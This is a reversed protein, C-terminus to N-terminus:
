PSSGVSEVGVNIFKEKMEAKSMVKSIERSVRNVTDAATNAPAFIGFISVAEFGPIGSSAVTPLGPLLPSPELSTVALAILRGSKVQAVTEGPTSFMMQVEGAILNNLAVGNGRYSVQEIRVKAMSKFLESAIQTASGTGGSGYNLQGPRSKALAILDRVSKVPLSPHIVLMAPSITALSIPSFDKQPDWSVKDYLFPALWMISGYLLLTYGDPAAKAVTEIPIFNSSRNDVIVQQGLGTSLGPAILRSTFDGGGGPTATVMRISRSPFDEAWLNTTTLLLACSAAMCGRLGSVSM